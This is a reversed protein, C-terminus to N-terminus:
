ECSFCCTFRNSGEAYEYRVRDAMQRVLYIGLGGIPRQEIDLGRDPESMSLPDFPRGYDRVQICFLQGDSASCGVEVVGPADEPYAYKVVNVLLEELALEMKSVIESPVRLEDAKELVFCRCPELSELSAPLTIWSFDSTESNQM